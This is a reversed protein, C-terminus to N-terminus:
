NSRRVTELDVGSRSGGISDMRVLLGDESNESNADGIPLRGLVCDDFVLEEGVNEENVGPEHTRATKPALSVPDKLMQHCLIQSM